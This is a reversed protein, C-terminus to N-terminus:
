TWVRCQLRACVRLRVSARAGWQVAAFRSKRGQTGLLSPRGRSSLAKKEQMAQLGIGLGRELSFFHSSERSAM